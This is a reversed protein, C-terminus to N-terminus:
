NSKGCDLPSTTWMRLAIACCSFFNLGCCSSMDRYKAEFSKGRRFFESEVSANWNSSSPTEGTLPGGTDADFQIGLVDMLKGIDRSAFDDPIDQQSARAYFGALGAHM